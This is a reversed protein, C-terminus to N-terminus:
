HPPGSRHCSKIRVPCCEDHVTQTWKPCQILYVGPYECELWRTGVWKVGDCINMARKNM